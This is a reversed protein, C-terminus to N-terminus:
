FPSMQIFYMCYHDDFRSKKLLAANELVTLKAIASAGGVKSLRVHAGHLPRDELTSLANAIDEVTQLFIYRRCYYYKAISYHEDFSFTNWGPMVEYEIVGCKKGDRIFVNAFTVQGANRAWDKLDQWSTRSDLNTCSMRLEPRGRTSSTNTKTPANRAAEVVIINGDIERKNMGEIAKQASERDIFFLFAYGQKLDVRAVKGFKSFEDELDSALTKQSLKGIFIRTWEGEM